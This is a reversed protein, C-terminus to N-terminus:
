QRGHTTVIDSNLHSSALHHSTDISAFREIPDSVGPCQTTWLDDNHHFETENIAEFSIRHNTQGNPENPAFCRKLPVETGPRVKREPLWDTISRSTSLEQKFWHRSGDVSSLTSSCGSSSSTGNATLYLTNSLSNMSAM